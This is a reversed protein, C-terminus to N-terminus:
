ERRFVFIKHVRHLFNLFIKLRSVTHVRTISEFWWLYASSYVSAMLLGTKRWVNWPLNPFVHRLRYHYRQRCRSAILAIAGWQRRLSIGYIAWCQISLALGSLWRLKCRVIAYAKRLNAHYGKLVALLNDCVLLLAEIDGSYNCLIMVYHLRNSFDPNKTCLIYGIVTKKCSSSQWVNLAKYIAQLPFVEVTSWSLSSKNSRLFWDVCVFISGYLFFTLFFFLLHTSRSILHFPCICLDVSM